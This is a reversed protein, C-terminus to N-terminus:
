YNKISKLLKKNDLVFDITKGVGQLKTNFDNLHLCYDTFHARRQVCSRAVIIHFHCNKM